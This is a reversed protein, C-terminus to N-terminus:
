KLNEHVFGLLAKKIGEPDTDLVPLHKLYRTGMTTKTIVFHIFDRWIGWQRLVIDSGSRSLAV